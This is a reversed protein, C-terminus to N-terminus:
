MPRLCWCSPPPSPPWPTTPWTRAPAARGPACRMRPPWRPHPVPRAPWGPLLVRPAPPAGAACPQAAARLRLPVRQHAGRLGLGRLHVRLLHDRGRPLCGGPLALPDPGPLVHAAAATYAHLARRGHGPQAPPSAPGPGPAQRPPRVSGPGGRQGAAGPGAGLRLSHAGCHLWCPRGLPQPRWCWCGPGWRQQEDRVKPEQQEPQQLDRQTGPPRPKLLQSLHSDVAVWM